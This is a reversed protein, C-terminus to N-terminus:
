APRRRPGIAAADRSSRVSRRAAHVLFTWALVVSAALLPLMMRSRLRRLEELHEPPVRGPPDRRLRSALTSLEQELEAAVHSYSRM